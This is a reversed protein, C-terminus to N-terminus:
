YLAEEYDNRQDDTDKFHHLSSEELPNGNTSTADVAAIVRLECGGSVYHVFSPNIRNLDDLELEFDESPTATLVIGPEAETATLVIEPEAEPSTMIIEPEPEPLSTSTVDRSSEAPAVAEVGERQEVGTVEASLVLIKGTEKGNGDKLIFSKEQDIKKVDALATDNVNDILQNVTLQVEGIIDHNGKADYDNVVLRFKENRKGENVLNDMELFTQPWVPSLSNDIVKSRYVADWVAVNRKVSRRVRHLEFYPDSKQMGFGLGDMNKLNLGRIQFALTGASYEPREELRVAIIGGGAKMEQALVSGKAGLISGVEFLTSGMSAEFDEITLHKTWDPSQTNEIYETHGLVTPKVGPEKHLVTVVAFPDPPVGGTMGTNPLNEAWLSLTLRM